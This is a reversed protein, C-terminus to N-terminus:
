KYKAGYFTLNMRYMTVFWVKELAIRVYSSGKLVGYVAKLDTTEPLDITPNYIFCVLKEGSDDNDFHDSYYFGSMKMTNMCSDYTTTCYNLFYEELKDKVVTWQKGDTGIKEGQLYMKWETFSANPIVESVVGDDRTVWGASFHLNEYVNLLNSDINYVEFIPEVGSIFDKFGYESSKLADVFLSCDKEKQGFLSQSLFLLGALLFAYRTNM